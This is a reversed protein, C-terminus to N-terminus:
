LWAIDINRELLKSRLERISKPDIKVGYLTIGSSALFDFLEDYFAHGMGRQLQQIRNLSM